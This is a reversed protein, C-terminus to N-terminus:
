AGRGSSGYSREGYRQRDAEVVWGRAAPQRSTAVRLRPAITGQDDGRDRPADALPTAAREPSEEASKTSMCGCLVLSVSLLAIRKELRTAGHFTQWMALDVRQKM